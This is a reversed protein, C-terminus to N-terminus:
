YRLRWRLWAEKKAKLAEELKAKEKKDEKWKKEFEL